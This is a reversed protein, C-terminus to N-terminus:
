SQAHIGGAPQSPEDGAQAVSMAGGARRRREAAGGLRLPPIQTEDALVGADDGASEGRVVDFRGWRRRQVVVPNAPRAVGAPGLLLEVQAEHLRGLHGVRPQRM